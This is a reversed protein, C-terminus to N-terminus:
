GDDIIFNKARQWATIELYATTRQLFFDVVYTKGDKAKIKAYLTSLM